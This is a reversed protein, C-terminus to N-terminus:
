RTWRGWRENVRLMEAVGAQHAASVSMAAGDAPRLAVISLARRLYTDVAVMRPQDILSDVVRIMGGERADTLVWHLGGSEPRIILLLAVQGQDLHRLLGDADDPALCSWAFGDQALVRFLDPHLTGTSGDDLPVAENDVGLRARLNEAEPSLGYVRYAASLSLLGCTHRELQPIPEAAVGSARAAADADPIAVKTSVRNDAYILLIAVAGVFVAAGVVAVRIGLRFWYHRNM